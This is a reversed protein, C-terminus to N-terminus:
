AHSADKESHRATVALDIFLCLGRAAWSAMLADGDLRLGGHLPNIARMYHISGDVLKEWEPAPGTISIRSGRVFSTGLFSARGRHFEIFSNSDDVGLRVVCGELHRTRQIFEVNGNAIEAIASWFRADLPTSM